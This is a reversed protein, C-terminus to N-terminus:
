LNLSSVIRRKKLGDVIGSWRVICLQKNQISRRRVHEEVATIVMVAALLLCFDIKMKTITHLMTQSVFM